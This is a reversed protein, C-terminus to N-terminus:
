AVGEVSGHRVKGLSNGVTPGAARITEKLRDRGSPVGDTVEVLYPGVFIDPRSAAWTLAANAAEAELSVADAIHPSTTQDAALYIVGGDGLRNGTVILTGSLTKM